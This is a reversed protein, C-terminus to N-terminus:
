FKDCHLSRFKISLGFSLGLALAAWSGAVGGGPPEERALGPQAVLQELQEGSAPAPDGGTEGAPPPLVLFTRSISSSGPHKLPFFLCVCVGRFSSPSPEACLACTEPQPSSRSRAPFTFDSPRGKVTPSLFHPPSQRTDASHTPPAEEWLCLFLRGLM